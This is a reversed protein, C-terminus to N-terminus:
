YRVDSVIINFLGYYMLIWSFKEYPFNPTIFNPNLTQKVYALFM